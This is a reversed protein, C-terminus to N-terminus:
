NNTVGLGLPKGALSTRRKAVKTAVDSIATAAASEPHAIVTPTGSDSDERLAPELPVQGLQEVDYGLLTTLREAVVQGGGSGFVDVVSGDPLVMASMNEIVGAVRQRTQQAISGAREAVEAAAAQPTTVVLLEANPISLLRCRM